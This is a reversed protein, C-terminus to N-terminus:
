KWYHGVLWGVVALAVTELKWHTKFHTAIAELVRRPWPYRIGGLEWFSIREGGEVWEGAWWTTLRQFVTPKQM